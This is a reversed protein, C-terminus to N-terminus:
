DALHVVFNEVQERTAQRLTKVGCFDTAYSKVLGVDLQHHRILQCLRDRVKAGGYNGNAPTRLSSGRSETRGRHSPLSGSNRSRVFASGTLRLCPVSRSFRVCAIGSLSLLCVRRDSYFTSVSAAVRHQREFQKSTM